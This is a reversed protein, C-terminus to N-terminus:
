KAIRSDLFDVSRMYLDILNKRKRPWHGEDSYEHYEFQKGLRELEKVVRRSETPPCRVDRSSATMLLPTRIRDLFYIPSLNRFFEPDKEPDGMKKHDYARLYGREHAIEHAWDFFGVICVAAAWMSPEKTIAHMCLYGGYSVGWFGLRDEDVGAKEILYRGAFLVDLLDGGGLDKDHLHLFERGYGTSGRYNPEIVHFGKAVLMQILQNWEAVSQMEPGGHPAVVGARRSNTRPSYLLASIKRGDYSKYAIVRPFVLSGKPFAKRSLKTVRTVKGKAIYLEDPRVSSGNIFALGEGSPLWKPARTVGDLKSVTRSTGGRKVKLVIRPGHAELYAIARGDPSYQPAYKENSSRVVWRTKRTRLNLEGIEYPDSENSMFLIRSSDPSWIAMGGGYEGKISYEVNRKELVKKAKGKTVDVVSVYDEDGIGTGYAIMSGDPSWAFSRAPLEENTLKRMKRTKVDILFLNEIDRDRNSVFAIKTGDPSFDPSENDEVGDTIRRKAKGDVRIVHVDFNEDGEFDANYAIWKGDPSFTPSLLSQDGRLFDTVRGKRLDLKALEWNVGKNLSAIAWDGDPHLAYDSIDTTAFLDSVSIGKSIMRDRADM